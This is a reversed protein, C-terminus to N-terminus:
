LAGDIKFTSESANRLVGLMKGRLFNGRATLTGTIASDIDVGWTGCIDIRNRELVLEKLRHGGLVSIAQYTSDAIDNDQVVIRIDINISPLIWIAGFDQDFNYEHGGCRVFSNRAITVTGAFDVPDHNGSVAVGAGFAVTDHLYNDTVENDEGGYLAINNALWQLGVTNFRVKNGRDNRGFTKWSWLAIGDDGTNRIANQEIVSNSTGGCLNIGDAYTNRIRCGSVLMNEMRYTWVGVKLHEMWVNTVTLDKRSRGRSSTEVGTRGALDRRTTEDGELTFDRLTVKDANVMFGAGPGRLVSHWVGAGALVTGKINLEVPKADSLDFVGAPIWVPQKGKAARLAKVLAATDNKGDNPVAGYDTISLAGAPPPAAGSVLEAEVLDVIYYAADPSDCAFRVATGAPLSQELLIRTDDFFRHPLADPTNTWPYSGYLWSHKSSLTVTRLREGAAYLALSASAGGGGEADPICYRIVFANAAASLDFEVYEGARSLRVAGRGSAESAINRYARSDALITGNTRMAEAEHKIWPVTAGRSRRGEADTTVQYAPIPNGGPPAELPAAGPQPATETMWQTSGEGTSRASAEAYGNHAGINLCRKSDAKSRIVLNETGEAASIHWLAQDGSTDASVTRVISGNASLAAQRGSARNVVKYAGDATPVAQWHGRPDAADINGYLLAQASGSEYLFVNEGASKLRTYGRPVLAGGSAGAAADAFTWHCSPDYELVTNGFFVEDGKHYLRFGKYSDWGSEITVIAENAGARQKVWRISKWNPDGTMAKVPLSFDNGALYIHEITINHGTKRNRISLNQNTRELAWYFRSDEPDLPKLVLRDDEREYVSLGTDESQIHQYTVSGWERLLWQPTGWTRNLLANEVYDKKHETHLCIINDNQPDSFLNAESDGFVIGDRGQWQTWYFPTDTEACQLKDSGKVPMIFRGSARNRIAYVDYMGAKRPGRTLSWQANQDAREANGYLVVGAEEYLYQQTYSNQINYYVESLTVEAISGGPAAGSTACTVLVLMAGFLTLVKKMM